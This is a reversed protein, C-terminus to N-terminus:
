VVQDLTIKTATGISKMRMAYTECSSANKRALLLQHFDKVLLVKLFERWVGGANGTTLGHIIGEHAHILLM